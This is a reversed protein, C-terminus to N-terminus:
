TEDKLIILSSINSLIYYLAKFLICFKNLNVVFHTDETEASCPVLNSASLGSLATALSV